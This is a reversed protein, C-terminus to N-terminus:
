IANQLGRLVTGDVVTGFAAQKEAKGGIPNGLQGVGNDLENLDGDEKMEPRGRNVAVPEDDVGNGAVQREGADSEAVYGRVFHRHQNGAAVAVPSEADKM